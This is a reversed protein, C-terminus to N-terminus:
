KKLLGDLIQSFNLYSLSGQFIKGNISFSPRARIGLDNRAKGMREVKAAVAPDALCNKLVADDLGIEKALQVMLDPNPTSIQGQHQYLLDHMKWFAVPNQQGACEAAESAVLSPTGFDLVPSFAFSVLGKAVYNTLLQPEVRLTFARCTPCIFDSYDIVRITAKPNGRVYFDGDVSVTNMWDTNSAITTTVPLTSAPQPTPVSTATSQDQQLVIAPSNTQGCATLAFVFLMLIFNNKM